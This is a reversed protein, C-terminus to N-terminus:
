PTGGPADSTPDGPWAFVTVGYWVFAAAISLAGHWALGAPLFGFLLSGDNWLWLDQHLVALLAVAGLALRRGNM